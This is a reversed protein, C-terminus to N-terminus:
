NRARVTKDIRRAAGYGALVAQTPTYGFVDEFAARFSRGDMTRIDLPAGGSLDIPLWEANGVRSRIAALLAAPGVIWPADDAARRTLEGVKAALKGPHAMSDIVRLYVDLGGLHGDATENPHGDRERAAFMFGDRAQKGAETQLGTVPVVFVTDFSHSSAPGAIMLGVAVALVAPVMKM